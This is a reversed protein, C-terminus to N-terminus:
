ARSAPHGELLALLRAGAPALTRDKRFVFATSKELHPRVLRRVVMGPLGSARAVSEPVVAVGLGGSALALATTFLAVEHAVRLEVGGESAAREIRRRVGYGARVTIVPHAALQKWSLPRSADFREKGAVAVMPDRLFIREELGPVPSELTGVGCDVRESVIREVFEGPACDDILLEVGPLERTFQRLVEPLVTQVVTSTAAIRLRGQRGQALDDMSRGMAELESLVRQAYAFAANAADTRKLSRTTRDFLRVGLREELERLLVTVAPQTVSLLEAAASIHGSQYVAVFARLQRVSPLAKLSLPPKHIM